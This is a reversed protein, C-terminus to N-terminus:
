NKLDEQEKNIIELVLNEIDLGRLSALTVLQMLSDDIANDLEEKKFKNKRSEQNVYEKALEGIEEVIHNFTLQENPQTNRKKDWALVFETIKNQFDKIGM